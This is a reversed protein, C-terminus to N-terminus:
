TRQPSPKTAVLLLGLIAATAASLGFTPMLGLHATAFGFSGVVGALALRAALNQLSLLTARLESAVQRNLYIQTLPQWLGDFLGRSLLFLGGLASTTLSLAGLGLAVIATLLAAAGRESLAADIRYAQTAVISTLIKIGAFLIGFWLV